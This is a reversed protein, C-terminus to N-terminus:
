VSQGNGASVEGNFLDPVRVRRCTLSFGYLWPQNAQAQSLNLTKLQVLYETRDSIGDALDAIIFPSNGEAIRAQFFDWVYKVRSIKNEEDNDSIDILPADRHVGRWTFSFEIEPEDVTATAFYGGGFDASLIAKSADIKRSFGLTGADQLIPYNGNGM